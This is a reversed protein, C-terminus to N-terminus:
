MVEFLVNMLNTYHHNSSHKDLLETWRYLEDWLEYFSVFNREDHSVISKDRETIMSSRQLCCISRSENRITYWVLHFISLFPYGTSIFEIKRLAACFDSCSNMFSFFFVCDFLSSLHPEASSASSASSSYNWPVQIYNWNSDVCFM